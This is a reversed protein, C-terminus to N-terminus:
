KGICNETEKDFLHNKQPSVALPLVTHKKFHKVDALRITLSTKDEGFHGHVLTDTGLLEVHDVNLHMIGEAAEALEFHERRIGPVVDKGRYELVDGDALPLTINDAIEASRGDASLRANMFNMAPSGIFGAVFRTAPREYVELHSGLQATYGNDMIILRGGLTMAEV